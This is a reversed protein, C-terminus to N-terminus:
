NHAVLPYEGIFELFEDVVDEEVPSNRVMDNSIGTIDTIMSSIPFGPNLLTIFDDIRHGNEYKIAAIEIIRDTAPELGTTEFDFAVYTNLGLRQLLDPELM